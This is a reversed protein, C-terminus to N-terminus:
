KGLFVLGAIVFIVGPSKQVTMKEGLIMIAFLFSFFAYSSVIPVVNSAEWYKLARFYLWQGILGGLLGEISLLAASKLDVNALYKISGTCLLFSFLAITVFLNRVALGTLPDIKVLGVKAFLPAAGWVVAAALAFFLSEKAM